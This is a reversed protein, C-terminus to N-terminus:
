RDPSLASVTRRAAEVRPQLEPDADKWLEVLKGYYYTAKETNGREEYLAGLREYVMALYYVDVDLRTIWPRELYRGYIALASDAQGELEYARGLDPLLCMWCNELEDARRLEM